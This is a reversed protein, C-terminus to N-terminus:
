HANAPSPRTLTQAQLLIRRLEKLLQQGAPSFRQAYAPNNESRVVYLFNDALIEDPHIIYDTNDKIQHHFDKIAQADVTSSGDSHTKVTRLQDSPPTIEFLHFQLYDFFNLKNSHYSFENANIIPIAFFTRESQDTVQIAQAFDIGDPNLLIRQRLSDPIALQQVGGIPAFGISAYLEKRVAPHMRSYIHFLEHIMVESFAKQNAQELVQKPIVVANERTYFATSGYHNAHTKILRLRDPLLSPSLAQCDAYVKKMAKEVFARETPSFDTVESQLF